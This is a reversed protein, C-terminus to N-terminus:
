TCRSIAMLGLHKQQPQEQLRSLLLTLKDSEKRRPRKKHPDQIEEDDPLNSLVDYSNKTPIKPATSTTQKQPPNKKKGLVATFGDKQKAEGANNNLVNLPCERFLHGHEHCKRCHFPIHEYDITQGWDEDQYELTISGPLARSIDM